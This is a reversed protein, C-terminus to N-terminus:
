GTSGPSCGARARYVEELRACAQASLDDRPPVLTRCTKHVCALQTPTRPSEDDRGHLPHLDRDMGPQPLAERGLLRTGVTPRSHENSGHHVKYAELRSRTDAKQYTSTIEPRLSSDKAAPLSEQVVSACEKSLSETMGGLAQTLNKRVTDQIVDGELGTHLFDLGPYQVMGQQLNGVRTLIILRNWIFSHEYGSLSGASHCGPTVGFRTPLNRPSCLPHAM